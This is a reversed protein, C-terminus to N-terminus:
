VTKGVIVVDTLHQEIDSTIMTAVNLEEPLFNSSYATNTFTQANVINRSHDTQKPNIVSITLYNVAYCYDLLGKYKIDHSIISPFMNSFLCKPLPSGFLTNFPSESILIRGWGSNDIKRTSDVIDFEGPDKNADFRQKLIELTRSPDFGTYGLSSQVFDINKVIKENIEKKIENKKALSM